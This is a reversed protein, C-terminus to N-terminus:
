RVTKFMLRVLLDDNWPLIVPEGPRQYVDLNYEYVDASLVVESDEKFSGADFHFAAGYQTQLWEGSDWWEQAQGNIKCCAGIRIALDGAMTYAFTSNRFDSRDYGRTKPVDDDIELFFWGAGAKLSARVIDGDYRGAIAPLATMEREISSVTNMRTNFDATWGLHLRDGHWMEGDTGLHVDWRIPIHDPDLDDKDHDWFLAVSGVLHRGGKTQKDVYVGGSIGYTDSNVDPVSFNHLGVWYRRDDAHVTSAACALLAVAFLRGSNLKIFRMLALHLSFAVNEDVASQDWLRV